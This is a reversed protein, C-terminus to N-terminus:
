IGLARSLTDQKPIYIYTGTKFDLLPNVLIDPNRSSFVWWLKSNHYLDFALLDPRYEYKTTIMWFVDDSLKPIPRDKMIDLYIKNTIDTDAYPSSRSYISNTM